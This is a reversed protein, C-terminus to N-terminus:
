VLSHAEIDFRFDPWAHTTQASIIIWHSTASKMRGGTPNVGNTQGEGITWRQGYMTKSAAYRWRYKHNQQLDGLLNETEPKELAWGQITLLERIRQQQKQYLWIGLSIAALALIAFRLLDASM